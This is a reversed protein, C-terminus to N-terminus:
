TIVTPRIKALCKTLIIERLVSLGQAFYHLLGQYSEAGLCDILPPKSLAFDFPYVTREDLLIARSLVGRM